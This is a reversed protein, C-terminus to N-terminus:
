RAPAKVERLEHFCETKKPRQLWLSLFVIGLVPVHRDRAANNALAAKLPTNIWVAVIRCGEPLARILRRRRKKTLNTCDVAVDYGAAAAESVRRELERRVKVYGRPTMEAGYYEKRIMDSGICVADKLVTKTYTTKGAGPIGVLVYVTAM